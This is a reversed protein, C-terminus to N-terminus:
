PGFVAKAHTIVELSVTTTLGTFNSKFSLTTLGIKKAQVITKNNDIIDVSVISTNLITWKGSYENNVGSEGLEATFSYKTQAVYMEKTFETENPLTFKFTVTKGIM